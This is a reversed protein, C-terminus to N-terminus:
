LHRRVLTLLPTPGHYGTVKVSIGPAWRYWGSVTTVCVRYTNGLELEHLGLWTDRGSEFDSDALFEFLVHHLLPLCGPGASAWVLGARLEPVWYGASALSVTDPLWKLAAEHEPVEPEEEVVVLRLETWLRTIDDGSKELYALFRAAHRPSAHLVRHVARNLPNSIAKLGPIEGSELIKLLDHSQERL